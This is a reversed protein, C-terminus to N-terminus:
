NNFTLTMLSKRNKKERERMENVKTKFNIKFFFRFFIVAFIDAIIAQNHMKRNDTLHKNPDVGKSHLNAM